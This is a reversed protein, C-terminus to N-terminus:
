VHRGLRGGAPPRGPLKTPHEQRVADLHVFSVLAAGRAPDLPPTRVHDAAVARQRFAYQGGGVPGAHGVHVGQVAHMVQEPRVPLRLSRAARFQGHDHGDALEHAILVQGTVAM